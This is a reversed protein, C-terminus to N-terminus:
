EEEHYLKSVKVECMDVVISNMKAFNRPFASASRKSKEMRKMLLPSVNVSNVIFAM